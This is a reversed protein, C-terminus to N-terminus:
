RTRSRASSGSTHTPTRRGTQTTKVAVRSLQERTTGYKDMHADAMQSYVGAFTTGAMREWETEGSVGLWYRTQEGSMDTMVEYGGALAVDATEARISTVAQRLASGSAACANEV